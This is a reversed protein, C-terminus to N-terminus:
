PWRGPRCQERELITRKGKRWAWWEIRAALEGESIDKAFELILDM